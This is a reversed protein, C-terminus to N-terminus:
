STVQHRCPQRGGRANLRSGGNAVLYGRGIGYIMGEKWDIWGNDYWQIFPRFNDEDSNGSVPSLPLLLALIFSDGEPV